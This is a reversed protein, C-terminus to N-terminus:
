NYWRMEMMEYSGNGYGIIIKCQGNFHFVGNTLAQAPDIGKLASFFLAIRDSM